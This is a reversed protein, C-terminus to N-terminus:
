NLRTSCKPMKQRSPSKSVNGKTQIGNSPRGRPRTPSEDSKENEQYDDQGSRGRPAFDDAHIDDHGEQDNELTPLKEVNEPEAYNRAPVNRKSKRGTSPPSGNMAKGNSVKFETGRADDTKPVKARIPTSRTAKTKVFYESSTTEETKPQARSYWTM